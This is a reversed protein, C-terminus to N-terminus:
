AVKANVGVKATSSVVMYWSDYAITNGETGVCCKVRHPRLLIINFGYMCWSHGGGLVEPSTDELECGEASVWTDDDSTVM